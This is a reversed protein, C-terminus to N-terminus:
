YSIPRDSPVIAFWTLGANLGVPKGEKDLLQLQKSAGAKKWTGKIVKGDRFLLMKGRGLTKIVAYNGSAGIPVPLVVVNKPAIQRKTERDIDPTGSIYRLYRNNKKDYKFRVNYLEGSFNLSVSTVTPKPAPEEKHIFDYPEFKAPKLYGLRKALGDLRVTSAYFNHPAARDSTRYYGESFVLGNMSKARRWKVLRLADASGGAHAVNADFGMAWDLYYPRLSRVPGIVKPRTEQYLALFRTIGGEAVTEFVVGAQGVSSQPRADPSNEIMVGTVARETLAKPVEVGTLPSYYIEKHKTVNLPDVKLGMVISQLILSYLMLSVAIAFAFAVILEKWHNHLYVQVKEKFSPEPLFATASM